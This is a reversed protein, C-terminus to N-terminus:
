KKKKGDELQAQKKAGDSLIKNAFTDLPDSEAPPMLDVAEYSYGAANSSRVSRLEVAFQLTSGDELKRAASEYTEHIGQPFYLVGSRIVDGKVTVAQFRGILPFYTKGTIPDEKAKVGDCIGFIKGLVVSDGMTELAAAQKPNGLTKAVIKGVMKVEMVEGPTATM